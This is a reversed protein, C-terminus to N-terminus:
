KVRETAARNGSCSGLSHRNRALHEPRITGSCSTELILFVLFRTFASMWRMTLFYPPLLAVRSNRSSEPIPPLLESPCHSSDMSDELFWSERARKSKKPTKGGGVKSAKLIAAAM